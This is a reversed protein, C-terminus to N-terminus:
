PVGFLKNLRAITAIADTSSTFDRRRADSLLGDWDWDGLAASVAARMARLERLEENAASLDQALRFVAFQSPKDLEACFPNYRAAGEGLKPWEEDNIEAAQIARALELTAAREEATPTSLKGIGDPDPNFPKDM